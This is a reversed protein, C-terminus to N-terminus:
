SSISIAFGFTAAFWLRNRTSLEYTWLNVCRIYDIEFHPLLLEIKIRADEPIDELTPAHSKEVVQPKGTLYDALDYGESLQEPTAHRETIDSVIFTAIDALKSAKERWKDVAGADPYLYVPKRTDKLPQCRERSLGNLNGTALWNFDPQWASAILATKESEVIAAPKDPYQKLLHEGFLCQSLNYGPIDTVKHLWTIHPYPEKVRHGNNSDYLMIKAARVKENTDIQWFVTAGPWHKSTGVRYQTLVNNATDIGLLCQLYQALNNRNYEKCTRAVLEFPLPTIKKQPPPLPQNKAITAPPRFPKPHLRQQEEFYQKPTYHYGCKLERNCRGVHSALPSNTEKDFYRAFQNKRQCQPCTQRSKMGTYPELIYRHDLM